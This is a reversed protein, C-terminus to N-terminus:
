EINIIFQIFTKGIDTTRSACSGSFTMMTNLSNSDTNILGNNYLDHFINSYIEKKRSYDNFAMQIVNSISSTSISDPIVEVFDSPKNMVALLKLHTLTFKDLWSLFILKTDEDINNNIYSNILLNRYMDIKEQQHTRLVSQTTNIFLTIFLDNSFMDEISTVRDELNNITEVIQSLWKEKRNEISPKILFDLNATILSGFPICEILGKVNALAFDKLDEKLKKKKSM